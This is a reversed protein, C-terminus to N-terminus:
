GACFQRKPDNEAAPQSWIALRLDSSRSPEVGSLGTTSRAFSFAARLRWSESASSCCVAVESTRCTMEREGPSSSGTNWAISEFAVRIQWAANPEINSPSPSGKRRTASWLAGCFNASNLSLDANILLM